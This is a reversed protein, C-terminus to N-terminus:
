PSVGLNKIQFTFDSVVIVNTSDTATFSGTGCATMANLDLGSITMSGSIINFTQTPPSGITYNGSVNTYTAPSTVGSDVTFAVGNGTVGDTGGVSFMKTSQTYEGGAFGPSASANFTDNSATMTVSSQSITGCGGGGGTGAKAVIKEGKVFTKLGSSLLKSATSFDTSALAASLAAIAADHAAQAQSKATGLPLADITTQLTDFATQLEDGINVYGTVLLSQLNNSFTVAAIMVSGTPFTVPGFETPFAKALSKAIKSGTKIDSALTISKDITAIAKLCIKNQKLETRDVSNSLVGVRDALESRLDTFNSVTAAQTSVAAVCLAILFLKMPM